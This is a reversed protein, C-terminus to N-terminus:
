SPHNTTAVGFAGPSMVLGEIGLDSYAHPLKFERYLRLALWTLDPGDTGVPKDPVFSYEGLHRMWHADLEVNFFHGGQSGIEDRHTFEPPHFILTLPKYELLRSGLYELYGGKILLCFNALQHSHEVLKKPSAHKLESLVLGCCSRKNVVNGYFQGPQLHRHSTASMLDFLKDTAVFFCLSCLIDPAWRQNLCIINSSYLVATGAGAVSTATRIM